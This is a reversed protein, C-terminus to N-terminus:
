DGYDSAEGQSDEYWITVVFEPFSILNYGLVCGKDLSIEVLEVDKGAVKTSIVL